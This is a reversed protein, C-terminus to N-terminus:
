QMLLLAYVNGANLFIIPQKFSMRGISTESRVCLLYICMCCNGHQYLLPHFLNRNGGHWLFVWQHDGTCTGMDHFNLKIWQVVHLWYFFEM